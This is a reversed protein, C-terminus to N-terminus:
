SLLKIIDKKEEDVFNIKSEKFEEKGLYKTRSITLYIVESGDTKFKNEYLNWKGVNRILVNSM